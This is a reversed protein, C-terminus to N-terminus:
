DLNEYGARSSKGQTRRVMNACNRRRFGALGLFGLAITWTASPEPVSSVVQVGALGAYPYFSNYYGQTLTVTLDGGATPTLNNFVAVNAVDSYGDSANTAAIPAWGTPEGGFSTDSYYYSVDGVTVQGSQVAGWSPTAVYALLTYSGGVSLGSLTLTVPVNNQAIAVGGDLWFNGPDAALTFADISNNNNDSGSFSLSYGINTAAGTSDLLGSGSAVNTGSTSIAATHNWNTQSYSGYGATETATPAGGYATIVLGVSQQASASQILTIFVIAATGLFTRRMFLHHLKM